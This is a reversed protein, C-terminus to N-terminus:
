GAAQKDKMAQSQADALADQPSKSGNLAAQLGEALDGSAKTVWSYPPLGTAFSLDKSAFTVYPHDKVYNQLDPQQLAAPGLPLYGTQSAWYAQEKPSTLFQLFIWAADQQAKSASAFMAINTGALQNAPGATGKPLAATGMTFKKGVAALNYPYSAVSSIDWVGPPAGLATQGPYNTGTALAGAKKLDVLYQLAQVAAKSTFQPTGDKAFVPSGFSQALIEYWATGGQPGSSNGPDISIAVVKGKSVKKADTAFEAWTTPAANIGAAKLLNQNYYQIVVSKNFPWMWLKGDPLYLDNKIGPYFASLEAKSAYSTLPMIVDNAALEAAWEEYVQAITPANGAAAAASIKTYLTGYDPQEQLQVTIKPHAAHFDSVMKALASKQSGSSMAEM